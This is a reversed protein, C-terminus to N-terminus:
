RMTVASDAHVLGASDTVKVLLMKLEGLTSVLRRQKRAKASPAKSVKAGISQVPDLMVRNDETIEEGEIDLVDEGPEIRGDLIMGELEIQQTPSLNLPATIGSIGGADAPDLECELKMAQHIGGEIALPEAALIVCEKSAFLKRRM